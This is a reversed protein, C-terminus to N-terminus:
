EHFSIAGPKIPADARYVKPKGVAELEDQIHRREETMLSPNVLAQKLKAKWDKEHKSRLAPDIDQRKLFPM